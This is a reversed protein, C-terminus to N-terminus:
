FDERGHTITSSAVFAGIDALYGVEWEYPGFDDTVLTEMADIVADLSDQAAKADTTADAYIRIEFQYDDATVGSTVLTISVPKEVKGAPPEHDYVKRVGVNALTAVPNGQTSLRFLNALEAKTTALALAM